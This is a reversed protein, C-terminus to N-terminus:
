SAEIWLLDFDDGQDGPIMALRRGLFRVLTIPHQLTPQPARDPRQRRHQPERFPEIAAMRLNHRRDVDDGLAVCVHDTETRRPVRFELQPGCVPV